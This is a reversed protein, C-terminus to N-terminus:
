EYRISLDDIIIQTNKLEDVYFNENFHAWVIGHLIKPEMFSAEIKMDYHEKMIGPQAKRFKSIIDRPHKGTIKDYIWYQRNTDMPHVGWLGFIEQVYEQFNKFTKFHVKIGNVHRDCEIEYELDHIECEVEAVEEKLKALYTRRETLYETSM